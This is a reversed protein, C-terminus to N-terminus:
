IGVEIEKADIERLVDPHIEILFGRKGGNILIRDLEFITKEVFVPM